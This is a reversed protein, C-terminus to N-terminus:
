QPEDYDDEDTLTTVDKPVPVATAREMMRRQQAMRAFKSRAACEIRHWRTADPGLSDARARAVAILTALRM